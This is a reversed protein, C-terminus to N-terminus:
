LRSRFSESSPLYRLVHLYALLSLAFCAMMAAWIMWVYASRLPERAAKTQKYGQWVAIIFNVLTLAWPISSIIVDSNTTQPDKFNPSIIPGWPDNHADPRYFDNM